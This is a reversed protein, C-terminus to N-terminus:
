SQVIALFTSFMSIMVIYVKISTYFQISLPSIHQPHHTWEPKIGSLSLYKGRLDLLVKPNSYILCKVNQKNRIAALPKKWPFESKTFETGDCFSSNSKGHGLKITAWCKSWCMGYYQSQNFVDQTGLPHIFIKICVRFQSVLWLVLLSHNCFWRESAVRWRHGSLGNHRCWTFGPSDPFNSGQSSLALIVSFGHPPCHLPFTVDFHHSRSDSIFGTLVGNHFFTCLNIM